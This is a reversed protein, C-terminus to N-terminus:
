ATMSVTEAPEAHSRPKWNEKTFRLIEQDMIDMLRKGSQSFECIINLMNAKHDMGEVEWNRKFRALVESEEFTDESRQRKNKFRAVSAVTPGQDKDKHVGMNIGAMRKLNGGSPVKEYGFTIELLINGPTKLYEELSWANKQNPKQGKGGQQNPSGLNIQWVETFPNYANFNSEPEKENLYEVIKQNMTNYVRLIEKAEEEAAAAFAPDHQPMLRLLNDYDPHQIVTHYRVSFTVRTVTRDNPVVPVIKFYNKTRVFDFRIGLEPYKVMLPDNPPLSALLYKPDHFIMQKYYTVRFPEDFLTGQTNAVETSVAM